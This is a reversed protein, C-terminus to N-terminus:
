RMSGIFWSSKGHKDFLAFGPVMPEMLFYHHDSPLSESEKIKISHYTAWPFGDFPQTTMNSKPGSVTVEASLFGWRFEKDDFVKNALATSTDM